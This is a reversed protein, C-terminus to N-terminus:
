VRQNTVDVAGRELKVNPDVLLATYESLLIEAYTEIGKLTLFNNAFDNANRVIDQVKRDNDRAWQIKEILDNFYFDTPVYHTMPRMLPEWFQGCPTEQKLVMSPGFVQKNLRDAWFCNGEAYVVYKFRQQAIEDMRQLYRQKGGCSGGVSVDLKDPHTEGLYSLRSRGVEDCAKEADTKNRFFM